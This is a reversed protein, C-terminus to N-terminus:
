GMREDVSEIHRRMLEYAASSDKRTIADLIQTHFQLAQAVNSATDVQFARYIGSQFVDKANEMTSMLLRNGSAKAIEMHFRTDHQTLDALDSGSKKMNELSAKMSAINEESARLAALRALEAEIMVRFELLEDIDSMILSTGLPAAKSIDSFDNVITGFRKVRKIFGTSELAKYAERLTSRSVGLQECFITENPFIYGAPIEGTIIHTRIKDALLDSANGQLNLRLKDLVQSKEEM